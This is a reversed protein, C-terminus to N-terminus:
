EYRTGMLLITTRGVAYIEKAYALAGYKHSQLGVHNVGAMRVTSVKLRKKRCYHNMVTELGWGDILPSKRIERFAGAAIAREGGTRPFYPMIANGLANKDRLGITMTAHGSLVPALVTEVHRPEFGLLDADAFLLVDADLDDTIRRIATGKGLNTPLTTVKVDFSRLVDATGDTSGDNVVRIERVAPSAMLTTLVRAVTREENYVAVIATVRATASPTTSRQDSTM